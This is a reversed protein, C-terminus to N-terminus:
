YLLAREREKRFTRIADEDSALIEEVTRGAELDARPRQSGVLRDFVRGEERWAFGSQKRLAALLAIGFAYPRSRGADRVGVRFGRCVQGSYKPEPATASAQPVFSTAELDFGWRAAQVGSLISDPALWPAGLRLFPAETGRGESLNTAELLCTGPYALAAEASRLNPSPPVWPLGTDKWTMGRRWGALPVVALGAERRGYPSAGGGLEGAVLRAMEGLTLGHVLPGPTRNVLSRPVQEPPDSLPGEVGEGGLPNPRDLIVVARGNEAAAELALLMTSAYTYFRVGADQLDVVLVDLDRLDESSPHTRAGYLSVVPLDSMADRGDRVEEGAALTGRLGHEPAFVRRLDLGRARLVDIAHRGDRTMSAAHCLLGLRKGRLEKDHGAAVRDLGTEVMAALLLVAATV